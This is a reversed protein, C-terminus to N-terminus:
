PRSVMVVAEEHGMTEADMAAIKAVPVMVRRDPAAAAGDVAIVTQIPSSLPGYCSIM